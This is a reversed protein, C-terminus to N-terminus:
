DRRLAYVIDGVMRSTLRRRTFHVTWSMVGTVLVLVVLGTLLRPNPNEALANLARAITLPFVVDLAGVLLLGLVIILLRRKHPLFYQALRRVLERDPYQRDYAEPDLNGFFAM